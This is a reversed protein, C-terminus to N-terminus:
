RKCLLQKEYLKECVNKELFIYILILHSAIFYPYFCSNLLYKNYRFLYLRSSIQLYSEDNQKLYEM